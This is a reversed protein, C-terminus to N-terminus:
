SYVNVPTCLVSEMYCCIVLKFWVSFHFCLIIQMKIKLSCISTSYIGMEDYLEHGNRNYLHMTYKLTGKGEKHTHTIHTHTCTYMGTAQTPTHKKVSLCDAWGDCKEWPFALQLQTLSVVEMFWHHKRHERAIGGWGMKWEWWRIARPQGTADSRLEMVLRLRKVATIDNSFCGIFTLFKFDKLREHYCTFHNEDLCVSNFDSIVPGSFISNAPTHACKLGAMKCAPAIVPNLVQCEILSGESQRAWAQFTTSPFLQGVSWWCKLEVAGCSILTISLWWSGWCIVVDCGGTYVPTILFLAHNRYVCIYIYIFSSM